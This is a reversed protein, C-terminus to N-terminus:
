RFPYKLIPDFAIEAASPGRVIKAAHDAYKRSEASEGLIAHLQALDHAISGDIAAIPRLEEILVPCEDKRGLVALNKVLFSKAITFSPDTQVLQRCLECSKEFNRNAKEKAGRQLNLIGLYFEAIFAIEPKEAAAQLTRSAKAVAGDVLYFYGLLYPTNIDGGLNVARELFSIAQDTRGLQFYSMGLFSYARGYDPRLELCRTFDNIALISEKRDYHILGNLLVTEIDTSKISLSKRVWELAEDYDYSDAALWGLSRYAQFYEGNYTVAKLYNSRAAAPEGMIHMIRGLSRYAEPLNPSIELAKEAWRSATSINEESRDYCNMFEACHCDALGVYALAYEPDVRLAEKLINRAYEIDQKTYKVYYSRALLYLEFAEPNVTTSTRASSSKPLLKVKLEILVTEAIADILDFLNGIPSDFKDTWVVSDDQSMYLTFYIRIRDAFRRINGRLYYDAGLLNRIATGETLSDVHREIKIPSVLDLDEVDGFRSCFEEHLGNALLQSERDDNSSRFPLIALRSRSAYIGDWKEEWASALLKKVEFASGPRDVPSKSLLRMIFASVYPSVRSSIKEPPLPTEYLISYMIAMDHEGKFPKEGTVLEYLVIGFAFLDSRIDYPKGEVQEPSMYHLTGRIEKIDAAIEASATRIVGFDILKINNDTDVIVNHPKLDSHIIGRSHIYDLADLIQDAYRRISDPHLPGEKMREALPKGEIFEAIIYTKNDYEFSDILRMVRDHRLSALAAVEKEILEPNVDGPDVVKIAVKQSVETDEALFVKGMGGAGIWDVLRYHGIVSGIGVIPATRTSKKDHNADSM